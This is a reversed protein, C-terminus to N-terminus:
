SSGKQRHRRVVTTWESILAAMEAYYPGTAHVPDGSAWLPTGQVTLEPLTTDPNDTVARFNLIESRSNINQSWGALLENL